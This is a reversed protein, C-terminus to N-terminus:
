RLLKREISLHAYRDTMALDKHGIIEKVDKLDVGSLMLNSCYTHRLDHFHFDEPGALECVARWAEYYTNNAQHMKREKEKREKRVAVNM